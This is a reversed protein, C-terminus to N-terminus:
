EVGESPYLRMPIGRLGLLRAVSWPRTWLHFISSTTGFIVRSESTRFELLILDNFKAFYDILLKPYVYQFLNYFQISENGDLNFTQRKLFLKQIQKFSFFAM